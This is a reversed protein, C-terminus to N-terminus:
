GYISVSPHYPARYCDDLPLCTKQRFAIIMAEEQASLVTRVRKPGMPMDEVTSRSKWKSVTKPNLSYKQSLEKITLPSRQIETRIAHTTKARKHLIQGM